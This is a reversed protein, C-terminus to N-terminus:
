EGAREQADGAPSYERHRVALTGDVYEKRRGRPWDRGHSHATQGRWAGEQIAGVRETAAGESTTQANPQQRKNNGPHEPRVGLAVPRAPQQNRLGDNRQRDKKATPTVLISPKVVDAAPAKVALLKDSKELLRDGIGKEIIKPITKAAATVIPSSVSATPPTKTSNLVDDLALDFNYGHKMIAEVLQKDTASEGVINRIEDMCSNLRVRDEDNLEPLQYCESDRRTHLGACREAELGDDDEEEIDRNNALFASISQQGKARDYMWQQADTPSICDDEVSHGLYDDDDDYEDDYNMTRVNRHRSM